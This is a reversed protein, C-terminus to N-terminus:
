AVFTTLIIGASPNVIAAATAFKYSIYTHLNHPDSKDAGTLISVKADQLPTIGYAGKGVILTGYVTGGSVAGSWAATSVPSTFAASSEEFTVDEVTGLKGREMAARNTYAMWTAFTSDARVYKSMRPHIVGRFTGDDFPQANMNRLETVAGRIHAITPTSSFYGNSLATHTWYVTQSNGEYLPFGMTYVHPVHGSLVTGSTEATSCASAFGIMDAIYADKTLAAGYGLAAVMEKVIPNVAEAEVRTTVDRLDGYWAITASAKRTSVCSVGAAVTENLEYGVGPNKLQHWVTVNGEGKPLPAQMGFKDYVLNAELRELWVRNYYSPIMGSITAGASDTYAAM